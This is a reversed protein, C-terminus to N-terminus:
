SKARAHGGRRLATPIILPWIPRGAAGTATPTMELLRESPMALPPTAHWESFLEHRGVQSSSATRAAVVMSSNPQARRVASPCIPEIRRRGCSRRQDFNDCASTVLFPWPWISKQWCSGGKGGMKQSNTSGGTREAGKNEAPDCQQSSSHPDTWRRAAAWGRERLGPRNDADERRPRYMPAADDGSVAPEDDLGTGGFVAPKIIGRPALRHISRNM